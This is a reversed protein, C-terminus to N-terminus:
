GGFPNMQHTVRKQTEMVMDYTLKNIVQFQAYGTTTGDSQEEEDPEFFQCQPFLARIAKITEAKPSWHDFDINFDITYENGFDFGNEQLRRFVDGDADNPWDM